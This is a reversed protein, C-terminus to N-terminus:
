LRSAASWNIYLISYSFCKFMMRADVVAKKLMMRIIKDNLIILITLHVLLYIIMISMRMFRVVQLQMVVYPM